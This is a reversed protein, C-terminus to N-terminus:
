QQVVEDVIKKVWRRLRRFNEINHKVIHEVLDPVYYIEPYMTLMDLLDNYEDEELEICITIRGM